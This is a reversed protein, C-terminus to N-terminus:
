DDHYIYNSDYYINLLRTKHMKLQKETSCTSYFINMYNM